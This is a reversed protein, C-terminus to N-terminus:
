NLSVEVIHQTYVRMRGHVINTFGVSSQHLVRAIVRVETSICRRCRQYVLSVSYELIGLLPAVVIQPQIYQLAHGHTKRIFRFSFCQIRRSFAQEALTREVGHDRICRIDPTVLASTGDARNLVHTDTRGILAGHLAQVLLEFQREKRM